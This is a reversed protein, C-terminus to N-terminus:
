NVIVSRVADLERLEKVDDFVAVRLAVLTQDDSKEFTPDGDM